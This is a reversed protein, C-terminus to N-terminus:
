NQPQYASASTGYESQEEYTYTESPTYQKWAHAEQTSHQQGSRETDFTRDNVQGNASTGMADSTGCNTSTEARQNAENGTQSRDSTHLHRDAERRAAILRALEREKDLSTWTEPPPFLSQLSEPYLDEIEGLLAEVDEDSDSEAYPNAHFKEPPKMDEGSYVHM